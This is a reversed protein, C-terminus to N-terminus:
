ENGAEPAESGLNRARPWLLTSALAIPDMMGKFKGSMPPIGVM